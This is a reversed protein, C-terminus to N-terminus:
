SGLLRQGPTQWTDGLGRAFGVADTLEQVGKVYIVARKSERRPEALEPRSAFVDYIIVPEDAFKDLDVDDPESGVGVILVGFQARQRQPWADRRIEQAVLKHHRLLDSLQGLDYGANGAIMVHVESPSLSDGVPSQKLRTDLAAHTEPDIELATLKEFRERAANIHEEYPVKGEFTQQELEVLSLLAHVIRLRKALEAEREGDANELARTGADYGLWGVTAARELGARNSEGSSLLTEEAELLADPLADQDHRDAAPVALGDLAALRQQLTAGAETRLAYRKPQAGRRGTEVHGAEQLLERERSLVTRITADTIGTDTALQAVTFPQQGYGSITRLIRFGELM